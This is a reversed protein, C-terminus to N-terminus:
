PSRHRFIGCYEQSAELNPGVSGGADIIKLWGDPSQTTPTDGCDTHVWDIGGGQPYPKGCVELRTGVSISTLPAPISRGASDYGSAFVNDIAVDYLKGDQSSRLTVHTHSLEVGQLTHGDRFTPGSVVSGTILTGANNACAAQDDDARAFQAALTLTFASLIFLCRM